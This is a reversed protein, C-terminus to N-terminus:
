NSLFPKQPQYIATKWPPQALGLGPVSALITLLPFLGVSAWFKGADKGTYLAGGFLADRIAQPVLFLCIITCVITVPLVRQLLCVACPQGSNNALNPVRIPIRM